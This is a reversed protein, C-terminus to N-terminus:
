GDNRPMQLRPFVLSHRSIQQSLPQIQMNSLRCETDSSGEGMFPNGMVYLKGETSKGFNPAEIVKPSSGVMKEKVKGKISFYCFILFLFISCGM